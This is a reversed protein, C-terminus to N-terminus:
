DEVTEHAGAAGLRWYGAAKVRDKSLGHHEMLLRRLSRAVEIEAAVWAHGSGPPLPIARLAAGLRGPGGPPAGDRSLWVLDLGAREPLPQREAEDAVEIVAIVRATAPLEELRRSIAPIATEDGALLYWDLDDPLIFSGKPGGVGLKQGPTAAAAWETAPGSEHVAFDISLEGAAQDYRRPTYDRAIPRPKGEPMVPGNPGFDPMSPEAEGPAPFFLKVHDDFGPSAFGALDEGGLTVRVMRPTIREVRRVTLMRRRLEHRVRRGLRGQTASM